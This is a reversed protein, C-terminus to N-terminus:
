RVTVLVGGPGPTVAVEASEVSLVLLVGGTLAAVGGAAFLVNAVLHNSEAENHAAQAETFLGSNEVVEDRRNEARRGLWAFAGGGALLAAGAGLAVWPALGPGEPPPPAPKGAPGGPAAPALKVHVKLLDGAELELRRTAPEHGALTFTVDWRGLPLWRVFPTTGTREETGSTLRVEALSPSSTLRVRRMSKELRIRLIDLREQGDKREDPDQEAVVYRDVYEVARPLDGKMEYCRGINFLYRPLEAAKWALEFAAIADDWREKKYALKGKKEYRRAQQRASADEAAAPTSLAVAVALFAATRALSCVM